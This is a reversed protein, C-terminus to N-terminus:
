YKSRHSNCYDDAGSPHKFKNYACENTYPMYHICNGCCYGLQNAGGVYKPTRSAAMQAQRQANEQMARQQRARQEALMQANRQQSQRTMEASRQNLAATQREMNIQPISKYGGCMVGSIYSLYSVGNSQAGQRIQAATMVMNNKEMTMSMKMMGKVVSPLKDNELKYDVQKKYLESYMAFVQAAKGLLLNDREVETGPIDSAAAGAPYLTGCFQCVKSGKVVPAGCQMCQAAATGYATKGSNADSIAHDLEQLETLADLIDRQEALCAECRADNIPCLKHCLTGPKPRSELEQALKQSDQMLNNGMLGGQMIDSVNGENVADSVSQLASQLIDM